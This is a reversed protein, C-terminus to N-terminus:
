QPIIFMFCALTGIIWMLTFINFSVYHELGFAM